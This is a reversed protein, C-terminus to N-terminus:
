KVKNLDGEIVVPDIEEMEDRFNVGEPIDNYLFIKKDLVHAFGIELFVNAGIYNSIGKKELNLVLIADSEKIKDFYRKIPSGITKRLSIDGHKEKDEKFKELDLEGSIIMKAGTPIHVDHGLSTLTDAIEKIKHAFEVSSCITIKM